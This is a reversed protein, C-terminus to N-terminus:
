SKKSGLFRARILALKKMVSAAEADVKKSLVAVEKPTKAISLDKMDKFITLASVKLEVSTRAVTFPHRYFKGVLTAADAGAGQRKAMRNFEAAKRNAFNILGTVSELIKAVHPAAVTRNIENANNDLQIRKQIVVKQRIVAWDKFLKQLLHIDTKDGLFSEDLVKFRKELLAGRAEVESLAVEVKERSNALVVDKMSRQMSVLDIEIDRVANSVVLPHHILKETIEALNVATNFAITGGIITFVILLGFSFALKPGFKIDKLRFSSM